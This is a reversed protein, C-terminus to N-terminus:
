YGLEQRQRRIMALAVTRVAKPSPKAASVVIGPGAGRLAYQQSKDYTSLWSTLSDEDIAWVSGSKQGIIYGKAVWRRITSPAVKAREAADPMTIITM